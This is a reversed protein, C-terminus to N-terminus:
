MSMGTRCDTIQHLNQMQIHRQHEGHMGVQTRSGGIPVAKVNDLTTISNMQRLTPRGRYNAGIGTTRPQM